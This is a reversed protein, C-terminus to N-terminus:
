KLGPKRLLYDVKRMFEDIYARLNIEELATCALIFYVKGDPGIGYLTPAYNPRYKKWKKLNKIQFKAGTIARIEDVFNLEEENIIGIVQVNEPVENLCNVVQQVCPPCNKMSFFLVLYLNVEKQYSTELEEVPFDILIPTVHDRYIVSTLYLIVVILFAYVLNRM